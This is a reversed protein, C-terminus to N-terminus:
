RRRSRKVAAYPAAAAGESAPARKLVSTVIRPTGPPVEKMRAVVEEQSPLMSGDADLTSTALDRVPGAGRSVAADAKNSPQFPQQGVNLSLVSKPSDECEFEEGLEMMEKESSARSPRSPSM